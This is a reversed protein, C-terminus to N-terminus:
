ELSLVGHGKIECSAFPRDSTCMGQRFFPRKKVVTGGKVFLMENDKPVVRVGDQLVWSERIMGKFAQDLDEYEKSGPYIKIGGLEYRPGHLPKQSLKEHSQGSKKLLKETEVVLHSVHELKKIAERSAERDKLVYSGVSLNDQQLFNINRKLSVSKDSLSITAEPHFGPGTNLYRIVEGFASVSILLFLFILKKM